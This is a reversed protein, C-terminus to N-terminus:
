LAVMMEVVADPIGLNAFYEIWGWQGSPNVELFVFSGDPKEILDIAGYHLGINRMFRLLATNVKGPLSCQTHAVNDFDYHRWDVKAKESAQSDIRCALVKEGIVMVRYEYKKPVYRQSFIPCGSIAEALEDLEGAVFVNAYCFLDDAGFDAHGFTKLLLQGDHSAFNTVRAPNNSVLTEPVQLGAETAVQQQYLKNNEVARIAARSNGLAM